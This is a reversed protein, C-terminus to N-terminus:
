HSRTNRCGFAPCAAQTPLSIAWGSPLASPLFLNGQWRWLVRSHVPYSAMTSPFYSLGSDLAAQGRPGSIEISSFSCIPDWGGCSPGALTLFLAAYHETSVLLLCLTVDRQRGSNRLTLGVSGVNPPRGWGLYMSLWVQHCVEALNPTSGDGRHRRQEGVKSNQPEELCFCRTYVKGETQPNIEILENSQTDRRSKSAEPPCQEIHSFPLWPRYLPLRRRLGRGDRHLSGGRWCLM